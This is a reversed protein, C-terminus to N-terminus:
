FWFGFVGSTDLKLRIYLNFGHLRAKPKLPELTWMPRCKLPSARGGEVRIAQARWSGSGAASGLKLPNRTGSM